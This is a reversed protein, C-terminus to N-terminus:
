FYSAPEEATLFTDPVTPITQVVPYLGSSPLPYRGFGSGPTSNAAHGLNFATFGTPGTHGSTFTFDDCVGPTPYPWNASGTTCGTPATFGPNTTATSGADEGFGTWSNFQQPSLPATGACSYSGLSTKSGQSSDTIWYMKGCSTTNTNCYGGGTSLFYMNNQWLQIATPAGTFFFAGASLQMRGAPHLGETWQNKDEYVINNTFQFQQVNSAPSCSQVGAPAEGTYALINNQMVTPQSAVLPGFNNRFGISMERYCINNKDTWNGTAQDHYFCNGGYQDTANTTFNTINLVQARADNVDHCRNHTLFNGSSSGSASQASMTYVCGGDNTLGLMVRYLDNDHININTLGLCFHSTNGSPKCVEIADHPSNSIDNFGIEVHDAVGLAVGDSTPWFRGTGTIANNVVTIGTPWTNTAQSGGANGVKVGYGGIDYILSDTIAVNQARNIIEVGNMTTETITDQDLTVNVCANCEIMASANNNGNSNAYNLNPDLQISAYGNAGLSYNDNEFTLGSFTLFQVGNLYLVQCTHSSTSSCLTGGAVPGPFDTNPNETGNEAAYYLVPATNCGSCLRDLYWQGAANGFLQKVNTIKYLNGVSWSGAGSASSCAGNGSGSNSCSVPILVCTGSFGTYGSAGCTTTNTSSTLTGTLRYLSATWSEFDYFEVDTLNTWANAGSVAGSLDPDAQDVSVVETSANGHIMEGQEGEGQGVTAGAVPRYRLAGNYWMREFYNTTAYSSPLTAKWCHSIGTCLGTTSSSFTAVTALRTGGSLIPANGNAPTHGPYNTYLNIDSTSSGSDAGAFTENVGFYYGGCIMVVPNTNSDTQMAIRAAHLTAFPTSVSTGNNTDSGNACPSVPTGTAPSVYFDAQGPPTSNGNVNITVKGSVTVGGGYTTQAYSTTVFVLLFALLFNKM